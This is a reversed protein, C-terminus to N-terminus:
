NSLLKLEVSSTRAREQVLKLTESRINLSQIWKSNISTCPSLCPDLKHCIAVKGLLMQQIPQRKEMTHKQCRQWFDPPCLQTSEYRPGRNQEVPRLIQKQTLVMSNKNHSQLISQLQICSWLQIWCQEKQV